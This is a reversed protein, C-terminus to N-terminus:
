PKGIGLMIVHKKDDFIQYVDRYRVYAVARYTSHTYFVKLKKSM